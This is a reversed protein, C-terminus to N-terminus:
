DRFMAIGSVSTQESSLLTNDDILFELTACGAPNRTIHAYLDIELYDTPDIITYDPPTFNATKTTWDLSAVDETNAVDTGLVQRVTGNSRRILVDIDAHVDSGAAGCDPTYAAIWVEENANQM